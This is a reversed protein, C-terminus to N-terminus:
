KRSLFSGRPESRPWGLLIEVFTGVRLIMTRALTLSMCENMSPRGERATTHWINPLSATDQVGGIECKWDRNGLKEWRGDVVVMDEEGGGGGEQSM